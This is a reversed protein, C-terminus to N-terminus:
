DPANRTGNIAIAELPEPDQIPNLGQAYQVGDRQFGFVKVWPCRAILFTHHVYRHTDASSILQEVYSLRHLRMEWTDDLIPNGQKAM